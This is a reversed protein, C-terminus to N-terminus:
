NQKPKKRGKKKVPRKWSIRTRAAATRPPRAPQQSKQRILNVDTVVDFQLVAETMFDLICENAIEM